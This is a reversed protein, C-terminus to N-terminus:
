FNIRITLSYQCSNVKPKLKLEDEVKVDLGPGFTAGFSIEFNKLKFFISQNGLLYPLNLSKEFKGFYYDSIYPYLSIDLNSYGIAIANRVGVKNGFKITIPFVLGITKMNSIFHAGVCEILNANGIVNNEFYFVNMGFIRTVLTNLCREGNLLETAFSSDQEVIGVIASDLFIKDNYLLVLITPNLIESEIKKVNILDKGVCLNIGEIKDSLKKSLIKEVIPKSFKLESIGNR